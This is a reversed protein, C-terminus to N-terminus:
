KAEPAFPQLAERRVAVVRLKGGKRGWGQYGSGFGQCCAYVAGDPHPCQSSTWYWDEAFAEEPALAARVDFGLLLEGRAPMYWDDRDNIRLNTAWKALESGAELMARTNALGDFASVAGDVRKSSKNWARAALAGLANPAKILRYAQEGAFINGLFIGGGHPQGPTLIIREAPAKM